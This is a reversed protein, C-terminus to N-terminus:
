FTARYVEGKRKVSLYQQTISLSHIFYTKITIAIKLSNIISLLIARYFTTIAKTMLSALRFFNYTQIAFFSKINSLPSTFDYLKAGISTLSKSIKPLIAFLPCSSANLASFFKCVFAIFIHYRLITRLWTPFLCAIIRARFRNYTLLTALFKIYILPIVFCLKTTMDAMSKSLSTNKFNGSFCLIDAPSKFPSSPYYLTLSASIILMFLYKTNMMFISISSVISKIVQFDQAWIAMGNFVPFMKNIASGFLRPM